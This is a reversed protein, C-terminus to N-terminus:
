RALSPLVEPGAGPFFCNSECDAVKSAADRLQDLRTRRGRSSIMPRQERSDLQITRYYNYVHVFELPLSVRTLPISSRFALLIWEPVVGYIM